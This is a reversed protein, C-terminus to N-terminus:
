IRPVLVFLEGREYMRGAREGAEQGWGTFLDARVPGRIAGGVDQAVVLRRYPQRTIPDNMVVFVPYGLPIFGRDVAISRGPTLPVGMAGIAGQTPRLGEVIRFFVFSPNANMVRTGREPDASLWARMGQMSLTPRPVENRAEQAIVRGIGVYRHGNQGAYGVRLVGGDELLVRGSGQIQMFFADVASDVWVLPPAIADIQGSEIGARDPYAPLGGGPRVILRRRGDNDFHEYESHGEPRARLPVSYRDTRTMSGRLEPEFYGTIVGRREGAATAQVPVFSRELFARVLRANAQPVRAAQSCIARWTANESTLRPCSELLAPLAEAHKDASWGPVGQWEAPALVQRDPTTLDPASCAAVALLLAITGLRM